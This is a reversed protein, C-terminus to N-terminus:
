KAKKLEKIKEKMNGSFLYSGAVLVDCGANLAEKATEQNIGGDIEILCDLHHADIYNRLEQVKHTAEKLYKQGGFGPEVSMIIVLDLEKLYPFIVEIPTAPKISMGVFTNNKKITKILSLRDKKFQYAEYHFTILDAGAKIFPLAYQHPNEIMLHVDKFIPFAQISSVIPLGFSLNPVFHGDMIDLHLWDAKASLLRQMEKKLNLFDASLLSPAVRIKKEM